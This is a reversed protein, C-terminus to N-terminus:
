DIECGKGYFYCHGVQATARAHGQEAAKEFYEKSKVLDKPVIVGDKYIIGLNYQSASLGENAAKQYLDLAIQVDKTVGHGNEYMWGLDVKAKASGQEAAPIYYKAANEYDKLNFYGRGKEYLEDPTGSLDQGMVMMPIIGFLLLALRNM